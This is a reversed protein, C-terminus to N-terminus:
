VMLEGGNIDISAGTIYAADDSSLFAVLRGVEEPRGFRPVPLTRVYADLDVDEALTRAMETEFIGPCVANVTVGWPGVEAALARTLGLLGAKATTYHVGALTSVNKGATSSFNVVRGWGASRMHPLCAQTMLFTGTVSVAIVKDWEKPSIDHFRTSLAIGAANILVSPAGLAATVQACAAAVDDPDTVDAQVYARGADAALREPLRRDVVAVLDGRERLADVCAAGLVGTGGTVISVRPGDSPNMARKM